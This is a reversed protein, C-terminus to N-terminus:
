EKVIKQTAINKKYDTVTILYIGSLLHSIDIEQTALEPKFSTIQRGFLDTISIESIATYNTLNIHIITNTPNPFLTFKPKENVNLDNLGVEFLVCSLEFVPASASIYAANLSTGSNAQNLLTYGSVSSPAFNYNVLLNPETSIYEKNYDLAIQTPTKEKDWIRIEDITGIFPFIMNGALNKYIGILIPEQSIYVDSYSGGMITHSVWQGNIYIEIGDDMHVIAIHTCMGPEVVVDDTKIYSSNNCNGSENFTWQVHGDVLLLAYSTQAAGCNSKSLITYTGSKVRPNVWAEITFNNSFNMTQDPNLIYYSQDGSFSICNNQASVLNSIFFAVSLTCIILTTKM